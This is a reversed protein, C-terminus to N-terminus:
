KKKNGLWYACRKTDVDCVYSKDGDTHVELLAGTAVNFVGDLLVSRKATIVQTYIGFNGIYHVAIVAGLPSVVEPKMMEEVFEQISQPFYCQVVLIWLSNSLVLLLVFKTFRNTWVKTAPQKM